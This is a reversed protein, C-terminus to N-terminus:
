DRWKVAYITQVGAFGKVTIDRRDASLDPRGYANAVSDTVLIQEPQAADCLRAALQVTAGFLDQSDEIPEGAHIGIRVRFPYRSETAFEAVDTQIARACEVASPVSGFSAMIGDGTHKVERGNHQNLRRRVLSDHARVIEVARVDGLRVTMETSGVMDTFMVVRFAPDPTADPRDSLRGLFAEVTAPDVEIIANAVHGHSERHVREAVERSPADVLCFASGRKEDYWYTLYKVGFADQVELDRVHVEAVEAASTGKLDHRDIFIPM